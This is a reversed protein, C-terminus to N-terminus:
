INVNELTASSARSSEILCGRPQWLPMDLSLTLMDGILRSREPM